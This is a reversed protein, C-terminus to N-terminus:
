NSYEKKELKEESVDDTVMARRTGTSFYADRAYRCLTDNVFFDLKDKNDYVFYLMAEPITKRLHALFLSEEAYSLRYVWLRAIHLHRQRDSFTLPSTLISKLTSKLSSFNEPLDSHTIHLQYFSFPLTTPSLHPFSFLSDTLTLSRLSLLSQSLLKPETKSWIKSTSKSWQTMLRM